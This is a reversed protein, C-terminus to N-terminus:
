GLGAREIPTLDLLNIIQPGVIVEGLDQAAPNGPRRDHAVPAGAFAVTAGRSFSVGPEASHKTLRGASGRMRLVGIEGRLEPSQGGFATLLRAIM